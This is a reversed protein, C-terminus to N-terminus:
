HEIGIGFSYLVNDRDTFFVHGDGISVGSLQAYTPIQDKSSYLEAGTGANLVYLKAHNSGDGESLAIVVGNALRPPAPKVMDESVWVPDLALKGDSDNVKFAVIGGHPTPGNLKITSAELSVGASVSAFVWTTGDKEQWSAFGDWGHKQNPQAISSSEFLPTHHEPGGLSAADLLAIGGNRGPAVVLRKEKYVFTIPSVSEYSAMGGEPTYWDQIKMDKAVSVVSSAHAEGNAESQGAGTVIISSGEPTVVPGTLALPRLQETSYSTVPYDASTLDIAWLGNPVNGCGRGTATYITKDAFNLAYASGNAAPLFRVPPAFDAGTTMVQEHLMGDPTLVYIGKLGFYGGGPAVGLRRETPAAPPADPPRPTGPPRRRRANFNIVIPPEMLVNLSSVGCGLAPKTAQANFQKKWVLSGLESDVAYLTDASSWYVIDKFGQANILRGALLPESFSRDAGSPKGLQIKWLFKFNAAISDPTLILEDKQWGNQGADGGTLSWDGRDDQAITVTSCLLASACILVAARELLRKKVHLDRLTLGGYEFAKLGSFHFEIALNIQPWLL